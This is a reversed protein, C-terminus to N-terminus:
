PSPVVVGYSTAIQRYRAQFLPLKVFSYFKEILPKTQPKLAFIECISRLLADIEKTDIESNEEKPISLPKLQKELSSLRVLFVQIRKREAKSMLRKMESAFSVGRNQSSKVLKRKKSQHVPETVSSLARLSLKDARPPLPPPKATLLGKLRNKTLQLKAQRREDFSKSKLADGSKNATKVIVASSQASTTLLSDLKKEATVKRMNLSVAKADSSIKVSRKGAFDENETFVQICADAASRKLVSSLSLRVKKKKAAKKKIQNVDDPNSQVQIMAASTLPPGDCDDSNLSRSSNAIPAFNSSSASYSNDKGVGTVKRLPLHEDLMKKKNWEPTARARRFFQNVVVNSEGFRQHVQVLPQIWKSLSSRQMSYAFREDCLLIAGYDFKHRIVRGLAQNVARSAQQAYWDKGSLLKLDFRKAKRYRHIQDDLYQRKLRVKPDFLPPFPMGTLVVARACHDSFDIGESAKGRCVAFFVAGKRSAASDEFRRVIPGFDASSRPEVFAEKHRCIQDWITSGRSNTRGKWFELCSQMVSYSPFFVLMGEPVLRAFNAITYGLESKYEPTDRNQYTSNLKKHTPGASVICAAVQSCGVVHSNQLRIEFPIRMEMAFSDMPSLTGSTLIISRVGLSLIQGMAVSPSFCWFALTRGKSTKVFDHTNDKSGGRSSRFFNTSRSAKSASARSSSSSLTTANQRSWSKKDGQPPSKVFIHVRYCTEALEPTLGEYLIIAMVKKVTEMYCRKSKNQTSRMEIVGDMVEFFDAKSQATINLSDMLRLLWSGDATFGKGGPALKPKAIEAELTALVCRLMQIKEASVDAFQTMSFGSEGGAGSVEDGANLFYLCSDCEELANALVEPALEFSSADACVQELNHAEDCIVIANQWQFGSLSARVEPDVLYNYPMFVVDATSNQRSLFYPCVHTRKGFEALEEIDQIEHAASFEHDNESKSPTDANIHFASVSSAQHSVEAFKSVASKSRSITLSEMYSEVGLHYRCKRIKVLEQCARNLKSGREKAVKPNVCLQERSGLISVNPRYITGKLEKVVQSLQSHTRATYIIKSSGSHGFPASSSESAPDGDRRRWEPTFHNTQNGKSAYSIELKARPKSAAQAEQAQRWAMTSCLLSMTKGTGTPSELLGNKGEQLCQIVKEMYVLQSPYPKFPFSVPVHRIMFADAM